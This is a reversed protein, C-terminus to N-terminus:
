STRGGRKAARAKEWEHILFNQLSTLLFSRFRGRERRARGVSNRELFNAFFAQSLDEADEPSHGKRRAYTYLPLWYTRCLKELAEAAQPSALDAASLIVSWHTTAFWQGAKPSGHPNDEASPM